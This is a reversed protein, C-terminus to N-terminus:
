DPDKAIAATYAKIAGPYDKGKYLKNGESRLEQAEKKIAEASPEKSPVDASTSGVAAM